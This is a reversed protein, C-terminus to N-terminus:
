TAKDRNVDKSVKVILPEIQLKGDITGDLQAKDAVLKRIIAILVNDQRFAREVFHEFLKKKRKREVSKIARRLEEIESSRPRGKPNGSEGKKWAM